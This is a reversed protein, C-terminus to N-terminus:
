LPQYFRLTGLKKLEGNRAYWVGGTKRETLVSLGIKEDYNYRKMVCCFYSIKEFGM